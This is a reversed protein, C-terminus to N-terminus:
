DSVNSGGDVVQFATDGNGSTVLESSSGGGVDGITTGSAKTINGDGDIALLNDNDSSTATSSLIPTSKVDVKGSPNLNLNGSGTSISFAGTSSTLTNGNLDLAGQNVNVTGDNQVQFHTVAGGNYGNVDFTNGAEGSNDSDVDVAVSDGSNIKVGPVTGALVISQNSGSGHDLTTVNELTNSNVNIASNPDLTLSGSDTTISFGSGTSNINNGNLDLDGNPVTVNRSGDFQIADTGSDQIASSSSLNIVGDVHLASSPSSTGIGLRSTTDDWFLNPSGGFSGSDNFQVQGDSGGPDTETTVKGDSDLDDADDWAVSLTNSSGDLGDGVLNTLETNGTLGGNISATNILSNEDLDIDDTAARDGPHEHATHHDDAGVGSLDSHGLQGITLGGSGNAQPVEGSGGTSALAEVTVEDDGGEGHRAAHDEAHHEDPGIDTLDAHDLDTSAGLSVTNGAVTVEDTELASQQLESSASDWISTGTDELDNSNLDLTADLGVDGSGNDTLTDTNVTQSYLNELPDSDTGVQGQPDASAAGAGGFLLALLGGAKLADRRSALSASPSESEPPGDESDAELKEIRERQQEILERQKQITTQQDTIHSELEDLRQEIDGDTM